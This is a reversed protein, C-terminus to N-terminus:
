TELVRRLMRATRLFTKTQITEMRGRKELDEMGKLLGKTVKDFFVFFCDCNTYNDSEHEM